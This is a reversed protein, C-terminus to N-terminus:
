VAQALGVQLGSLLHGHDYTSYESASIVSLMLLARYSVCKLEYDVYIWIDFPDDFVKPLVNVLLTMM